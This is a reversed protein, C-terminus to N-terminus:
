LPAFLHTVPRKSNINSSGFGTQSQYIRFLAPNARHTKWGLHNYPVSSRQDWLDFPKQIPFPNRAYAYPEFPQNTWIM